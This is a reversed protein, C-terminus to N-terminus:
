VFFPFSTFTAGDYVRAYFQSNMHGMTDCQWPYVVARFCEIPQLM